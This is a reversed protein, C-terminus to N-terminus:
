KLPITIYFTAGGGVTDQFGIKGNLMKTLENAISLGLGFHSKDTHSKNACYFRDFIYPRDQESVGHGHDVVFFTITKATLSTRIQINPSNDSHHVANDM